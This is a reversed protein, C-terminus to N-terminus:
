VQNSTLTFSHILGEAVPAHPRLSRTHSAKFEKLRVQNSTLTFSYVTAQGTENSLARTANGYTVALEKSSEAPSHLVWFVRM